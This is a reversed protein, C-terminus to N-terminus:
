RLIQVYKSFGPFHSDRLRQALASNVARDFQLLVPLAPQPTIQQSQIVEALSEQHSNGLTTNRHVQCAM